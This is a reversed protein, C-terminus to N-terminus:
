VQVVASRVFRTLVAPGALVGGRVLVLAATWLTEGSEVTLHHVVRTHRCGAVVASDASLGSAGEVTGAGGAPRPQSTASTLLSYEGLIRCYFCRLSKPKFKPLKLYM